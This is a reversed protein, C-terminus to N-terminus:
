ELAGAKMEVAEALDKPITDIMEFNHFGTLSRIRFKRSNGSTSQFTYWEVLRDPLTFPAFCLKGDDSIMWKRVAMADAAHPGGTHSASNGDQRYYQRIHMGDIAKGYVLARVETPDTIDNWTDQALSYSVCSISGAIMLGLLTFRSKQM